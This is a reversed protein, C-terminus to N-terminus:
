WRRIGPFPPAFRDHNSIATEEDILNFGKSKRSTANVGQVDYLVQWANWAAFKDERQKLIDHLEAGSGQELISIGVDRWGYAADPRDCGDGYAAFLKYLANKSRLRRPYDMLPSLHRIYGAAKLQVEWDPCSEILACLAEILRIQQERSLQMRMGVAQEILSARVITDEGADNIRALLLENIADAETSDVLKHIVLKYLGQGATLRVMPNDNSLGAKLVPMAAAGCGKAADVVTMRLQFEGPNRGVAELLKGMSEPRNVRGLGLAAAIRVSSESDELGQELVPILTADEAALSALAGYAARRVLVAPDDTMATVAAAPVRIKGAAIRRLTEARVRWDADNLTSASLERRTYAEIGNKAWTIVAIPSVGKERYPKWGPDHPNVTRVTLKIPTGETLELLRDLTRRQAATDGLQVWFEDVIGEDIWKEFELRIKGTGRIPMAWWPQVYEPAEADLIMSLKKGERRLEAALERLFVTIFHGRCEYWYEAQEPTLKARRLDVDPYRKEFMEVVEPEFGFEHEYHIAFNEVYTYFNIGDYGDRRLIEMFHDIVARRAEPITFSIPGPARREGWRDTGVWEPHDARLKFEFRYGASADPQLGFELLGTYFFAEMGHRKAAEVALRDLSKEETLKVLWRTWEWSTPSLVRDVRNESWNGIARWYLRRIGYTGSTYDMMADLTAASDCPEVSTSYLNDGAGCFLYLPAEEAVAVGALMTLGIIASIKM